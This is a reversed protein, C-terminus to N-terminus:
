VAASPLPAEQLRKKLGALRGQVSNDLMRSEVLVRVGGQLEPRLANKLTITKKLRASMNAELSAIEAAGLPRASEVVGEVAGRERLARVHFAEGLGQLVSERRKDFLLDVFNRTLRHAAALEPALKSRRAERSVRADFFFAAGPGELAAALRRVDREVEAMANERLALGFLAEVYRSTVPDIM